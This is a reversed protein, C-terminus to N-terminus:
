DSLSPSPESTIKLSEKVIKKEITLEIKWKKQEEGEKTKGTSGSDTDQLVIYDPHIQVSNTLSIM